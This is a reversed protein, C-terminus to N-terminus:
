FLINDELDSIFKEGKVELDRKKLSKVVTRCYDIKGSETNIIQNTFRGEINNFIKYLERLGELIINDEINNALTEIDTLIAEKEKSYYQNVEEEIEKEIQEQDVDKFEFDFM